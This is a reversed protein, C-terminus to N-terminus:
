RGDVHQGVISRTKAGGCHEAERDRKRKKRKNPLLKRPLKAPENKATLDALGSGVGMSEVRYVNAVMWLPFETKPYLKRFVNNSAGPKRDKINSVCCNSPNDFITKGDWAVFHSIKQGKPNVLRINLILACEREQLINFPVGHKVQYMGTVDTVIVGNADLVPKLHLLSTDGTEPMREALQSWFHGNPDQDPILKRFAEILCTRTNRECVPGATPSSPVLKAGGPVQISQIQHKKSKNRNRCKSKSKEPPTVQPQLATVSGEVGYESETETDCETTFASSGGGRLSAAGESEDAPYSDAAKEEGGGRLVEAGVCKPSIQKHPNNKSRKRPSPNSAPGGEGDVSDCEEGSTRATTSSQGRLFDTVRRLIFGVNKQWRPLITSTSKPSGYSLLYKPAHMPVKHNFTLTWKLWELFKDTDSFLKLGLKAIAVLDDVMRNYPPILESEVRPTTGTVQELFVWGNEQKEEWVGIRMWVQLELMRILEPVTTPDAPNLKSVIEKEIDYRPMVLEDIREVVETYTETGKQIFDGDDDSRDGNTIAMWKLLGALERVVRRGEAATGENHEM